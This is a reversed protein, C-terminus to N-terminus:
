PHQKHYAALDNIFATWFLEGVKRAGQPSFHTYDAAALPPDAEVWSIMSNRGGMAAYMDWFVAGQALTNRKMAANVEELFPRTVFYEGEKVSMDSPGIVIVAVGPIMRKFRAIQGGFFSGYREAQDASTINPVVNGGFQLILLEPALAGYMGRLLDQDMRGFEYGAGGRMALNDVTVGSRGEMSVGFVDPGDVGSFRLELAGSGHPVRWEKVLLRDAPPIEETGITVEDHLVEITLPAKHWGLFLKCVEYTRAKGYARPEPRLLISARHLITDPVVTDSLIPTFRSFAGLAGFRSHHLDRPKRGMVSYRQWNDSLIREVSFFPTIDAVSVLGPGEGGFQAQLKHRIYSTIRDGEIQSDGYHLVRVRGAGGGARRLADFLDHLASRDGNPYHLAIREQLPPLANTDLVFPRGNPVSDIAVMTSDNDLLSDTRLAEIASIDVAPPPANSFLSRPSPMRVVTGAVDVGQEPWLLGLVGLTALVALLFLLTRAPTM